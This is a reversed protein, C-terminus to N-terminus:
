AIINKIKKFVTSKHVDTFMRDINWGPTKIRQRMLKYPINLEDCWDPLSQSKGQYTILINRRTNRASTKRTVFRCNTPTYNGDNNERDIFLDDRYGNKFAWRSFCEFDDKWEDCVTIGRGGYNKYGANNENYCRAKMDQWVTYIRTYALGHKIKSNTLLQSKKCGCSRTHGRKLASLYYIKVLGCECVAEVMREGGRKDTESLITLSGFIQGVVQKAQPM